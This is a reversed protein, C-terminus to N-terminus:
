SVPLLLCYVGKFHILITINWCPFTFDWCLTRLIDLFAPSLALLSVPVPFSNIIRVRWRGERVRGAIWGHSDAFPSLLHKHIFTQSRCESLWSRVARGNWRALLDRFFGPLLSEKIVPPPLFVQEPESLCWCCDRFFLHQQKLIGQLIVRICPYLILIHVHQILIPYCIALFFM